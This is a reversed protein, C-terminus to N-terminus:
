ASVSLPARREERAEIGKEMASEWGDALTRLLEEVAALPEDRQEFNARALEELVFAYLRRLNKELDAGGEVPQLSRALEGVLAAAKGVARGRAAIDGRRLASRADGVAELASRYLLGVLELPSAGMVQDELYNDSYSYLRQMM